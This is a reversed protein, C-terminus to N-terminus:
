IVPTMPTSAVAFVIGVLPLEPDITSLVIEGGTTTLRFPSLQVVVVNVAAALVSHVTERLVAAADLPSVTGSELLLGLTLM